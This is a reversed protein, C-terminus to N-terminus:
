RSRIAAITTAFLASLNLLASVAHSYEWRVRLPEWNAPLMTWNQTAVNVPYTFSWFIVQTAVICLCAVTAAAFGPAGRLAIALGATALLAILIIVGSLSWGRYIQQVVLYEQAPLHIKHVLEMLHAGAPILALATFTIAAFKLTDVM